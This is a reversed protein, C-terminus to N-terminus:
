QALTGCSDGTGHDAWLQKRLFVTVGDASGAESGRGPLSSGDLPGSPERGASRGTPSPDTLEVQWATSSSHTQNANSQGWPSNRERLPAGTM